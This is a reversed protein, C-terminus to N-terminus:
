KMTVIGGLGFYRRRFAQEYAKLQKFRNYGNSHVIQDKNWLICLTNGNLKCCQVFLNSLYEIGVSFSTSGLKWSLTHLEWMELSLWTCFLLLWRSVHELSLHWHGYDKNQHIFAPELVDMWMYFTVISVYNRVQHWCLWFFNAGQSIRLWFKQGWRCNNM